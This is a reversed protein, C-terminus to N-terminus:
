TPWNSLPCYYYLPSFQVILVMMNIRCDGGVTKLEILRIICFRTFFCFTYLSLVISCYTCVRWLFVIHTSQSVPDLSPIDCVHHRFMFEYLIYFWFSSLWTEFTFVPACTRVDSLYGVQPEESDYDATGLVRWAKLMEGGWGGLGGRGGGAWPRGRRRTRL